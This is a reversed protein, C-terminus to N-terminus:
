AIHGDYNNQTIEDVEPEGNALAPHTNRAAAFNRYLSLLSTEDASQREVSISATLMGKDVKGSLKKSAASSLNPTWLIPTRVYEDGGSKTGWYGLEEGQYIYPRGPSTLLVCAALRIKNKNNGLWSATRDEDHNSLKPTSIANGRVARHGDWRGKLSQPFNMNYGARYIDGNNICERLDWWFQFEFLAPLGEYFKTCHGDGSLVEGVMFIDSDPNVLGSRKSSYKKYLTNCADYFKKWFIINNRGAEVHYIHKVADLRFGDVGMALWKDASEVIAKFAASNQCNDAAGYNFDVFMGTGFETYYYYLEGGPMVISQVNVPNNDSYLTHAVGLKMQDGTTNFGWKTKGTWVDENTTRVLCGWESQYDLTLTYKGTGNDVFQTYTGNGWYLYRAPNDKAGGTTPEATTETVTMKPASSNTWDLDIKYRKKGGGGVTVPYWKYRDYNRDDVQAIKGSQCDSQPNKSLSYYNWYPSATGNQKIDLFWKNQDGSHNMVYDIYIRINHEHATTVLNQFDEITGFERNVSEYDTVDYGHYSQAPQIPSLWLATVGLKDFYDMSETLGNFDGIGDNNSDKFSFVNVQYTLGGAKSTVPINYDGGASTYDPKGEAEHTWATGAQLIYAIANEVCLYVDYRGTASVVMNNGGSTLVIKNGVPVSTTTNVNEGCGFNSAWARDQRFKFGKGAALSVDKAVEWYGQTDMPVDDVFNWGGVADGVISWASTGFTIPEPEVGKGSVGPELPDEVKTVKSGDWVFYLTNMITLGKWLPEEEGDSPYQHRKILTGGEDKEDGQGDNIIINIGSVGNFGSAEWYTWTYDGIQKTGNAYMGPWRGYPELEGKGTYTYLFPTKWTSNNLIFIRVNEGITQDQTADGYAFEEGATLVYLLMFTPHVYLDYTGAALKFNNGNDVLPYKKNLYPQYNSAGLNTTWQQEKRFKFEQGAEVVVDFAAMWGTPEALMPLDEEGALSWNLNMISGTVGWDTVLAFDERPIVTGKPDPTDDTPDISPDDPNVQGAKAQQISLNYVATGARFSVRGFRKEGTNAEVSVTVDTTGSGSSPKVTIWADSPEATWNSANTTIKVSAEDATGALSVIGDKADSSFTVDEQKEKTCTFAVFAVAIIALIKKM